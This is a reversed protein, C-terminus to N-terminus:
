PAQVSKIRVGAKRPANLHGVYLYATTDNKRVTAFIGTSGLRRLVAKRAATAIRVTPFEVRLARQPSTRELRLRMENSFEDWFLTTASRPPPTRSSPLMVDVIPVERVTYMEIRM